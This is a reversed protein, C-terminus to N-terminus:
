LTVQFLVMHVRYQQMYRPFDVVFLIAGCSGLVTRNTIIVQLAWNKGFRSLGARESDVFFGCMSSVCGDALQIGNGTLYWLVATDTSLLAELPLPAPFTVM